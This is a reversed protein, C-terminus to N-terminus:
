LERTVEGQFKIHTRLHCGYQSGFVPEDCVFCPFPRYRFRFRKSQDERDDQDRSSEHGGIHSRLSSKFGFSKHCLECVFKKEARNHHHNRWHERLTPISDSQHDCKCCLYPVMHLEMHRRLGLMNPGQYECIGCQFNKYLSKYKLSHIDEEEPIRNKRREGCCIHRKVHAYLVQGPMLERFCIFCPIRGGAPKYPGHKQLFHQKLSPLDAFLLRQRGWKGYTCTCSTCKCKKTMSGSCSCIRCPLYKPPFHTVAHQRMSPLDDYVTRCLQCRFPKQHARKHYKMWRRTDSYQIGM